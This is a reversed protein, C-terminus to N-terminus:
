IIYDIDDEVYVDDYDEYEELLELDDSQNIDVSSQNITPRIVDVNVVALSFPDVEIHGLSM